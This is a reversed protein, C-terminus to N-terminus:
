KYLQDIFGSQDIEELITTDIFDEPKATKAKPNKQSLQDLILQIGKLTPYPKQPVIKLAFERYTEELAEEDETKMFESMIEISEKKHTKYYWIGELYSKVFNKATEPEEKLFSTQAALGTHQYELGTKKLDLMLNFGLKQASITFPPTM